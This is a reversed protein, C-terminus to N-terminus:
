TQLSAAQELVTVQVEPVLPTGTSKRPTSGLHPRMARVEMGMDSNKSYTM